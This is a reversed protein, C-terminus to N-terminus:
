DFWYLLYRFILDLVVQVVSVISSTALSAFKLSFAEYGSTCFPTGRVNIVTFAGTTFWDFIATCLCCLCNCCKQWCNPEDVQHPFLAEYILRLIGFIVLLIGGLVVSGMHKKRYRLSAEGYPDSRGYYWSTAAGGM